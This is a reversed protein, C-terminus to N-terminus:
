FFTIAEKPHAKQHAQGDGFRTSHGSGILAGHDWELNRLFVNWEVDAVEGPKNMSRDGPKRDSRIIRGRGERQAVKAADVGAVKGRSSGDEPWELKQRHLWNGVQVDVAFLLVKPPKTQTMM